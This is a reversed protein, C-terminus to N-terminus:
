KIRRKMFFAIEGDPYDNNSYLSLDIGELTFGMRQYFRIAPVNTNQTEVVMVRCPTPSLKQVLTEILQRGIGQGRYKELVHLEHLWLTQNWNQMGAIAIGVTEKEIAAELCFGESLMSQYFEFTAEDPVDYLKVYSTNLETLKLDFVVANESSTHNVVFKEHTTYGTIISNLMELDLTHLPHIIVTM